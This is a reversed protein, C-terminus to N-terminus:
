ATRTIWYLKVYPPLSSGAATDSVTHSHSGSSATTMSYTHTHPFASVNNAGSTAGGYASGGATTGSATHTHGSVSSTNSNTHTHTESGGDDALDSDDTEACGYIFMGRLDPTVYTDYTGGDCIHWGAPITAAARYFAVVAGIPFDSYDPPDPSLAELAALRTNMDQQNSVLRNWHSPLVTQSALMTVPAVYTM